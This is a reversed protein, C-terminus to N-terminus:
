YLEEELLALHEHKTLNLKMLDTDNLPYFIEYEIKPIKMGEEKADIKLIYLSANESINYHNILKKECEGLFITTKNGNIHNNQNKTNTITIIINKTEVEIDNGNKVKNYNDLLTEKINEFILQNKINENNLNYSIIHNDDPDENYFNNLCESNNENNMTLFIHKIQNFIEDPNSQFCIDNCDYNKQISLLYNQMNTKNSCIKLDSPLNDFANSKITQDNIELSYINLYILSSMNYFLNEIKTLIIPSFHPIDLYKLNYCNYFMFSMDTVKSTDFNSLNLYILSKCKNFMSFM